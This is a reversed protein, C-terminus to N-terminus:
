SKSISKVVLDQLEITSIEKALYAMANLTTIKTFAAEILRHLMTNRTEDVGLYTQMEAVLKQLFYASAKLNTARDQNFVVINDDKTELESLLVTVMTNQHFINSQVACHFNLWEVLKSHENKTFGWKYKICRWTRKPPWNLYNSLEKTMMFIRETFEDPNFTAKPYNTIKAM